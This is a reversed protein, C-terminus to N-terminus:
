GYLSTHRSWNGGGEGGKVGVMNGCGGTAEVSGTRENEVVCRGMEHM